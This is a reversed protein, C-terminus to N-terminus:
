GSRRSRSSAQHGPQSLGQRVRQLELRLLARRFDMQPTFFGEVGADFVAPQIVNTPCVKMCEGCRACTAM